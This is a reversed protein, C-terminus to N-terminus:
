ALSNFFRFHLVPLSEPPTTRWVAKLAAWLPRFSAAYQTFGRLCPGASEVIPPAAFATARGSHRFSAGQRLCHTSPMNQEPPLPNPPKWLSGKNLRGEPVRQQALFAARMTTRCPSITQSILENEFGVSQGLFERSKECNAIDCQLDATAANVCQDTGVPGALRRTEIQQGLEQARRRAPDDVLPLVDRGQRRGVHRPEPEDARELDRRDERMQG